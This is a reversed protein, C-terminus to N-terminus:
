GRERVEGAGRLRHPRLAALGERILSAGGAEYPHLPVIRADEPRMFYTPMLAHPPLPPVRFPHPLHRSRPPSPSPPLLPPALSPPCSLHFASPSPPSSSATTFPHTAPHPSARRPNKSALRWPTKTKTPAPLHYDCLSPPLPTPPNPSPPLQSCTDILRAPHHRQKLHAARVAGVVPLGRSHVSDVHLGVLRRRGVRKEDGVEGGGEGRGCDEEGM